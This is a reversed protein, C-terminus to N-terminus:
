KPYKNQRSVVEKGPNRVKSGKGKKMQKEYERKRRQEFLRLGAVLIPVVGTLTGVVTGIVQGPRTNFIADYTLHLFQSLASVTSSKVSIDDYYVIGGETSELLVGTVYSQFYDPFEKEILATVGVSIDIWQDFPKRNFSLSIGGAIAGPDPDFPTESDVLDDYTVNVDIHYRPGNMDPYFYLHFLAHPNPEGEVPRLLTHFELRIGSAISRPAWDQYYGQGSGVIKLSYRGSNATEDVISVTKASPIGQKWGTMGAEFGGNVVLEANEDQPQFEPHPIAYVAYSYGTAAILRNLFARRSCKLDNPTRNGM